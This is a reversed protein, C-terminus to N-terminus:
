RSWAFVAFTAFGHRLTERLFSRISDFQMVESVHTNKMKWEQTSRSGAPDVRPYYKRLPQHQVLITLFGNSWRNLPPLNLWMM